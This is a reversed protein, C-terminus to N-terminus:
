SDGGAMAEAKHAAAAKFVDAYDEKTSDRFDLTDAIESGSTTATLNDIIDNQREIVQLARDNASGQAVVCSLVAMVPDEHRGMSFRPAGIKAEWEPGFGLGNDVAQLTCRGDEPYWEQMVALAEAARQTDTNILAAASIGPRDAIIRLETAINAPLILRTGGIKHAAMIMIDADRDSIAVLRVNEHKM